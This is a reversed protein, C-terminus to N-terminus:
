GSGYGVRGSGKGVRIQEALQTPSLPLLTFHNCSLPLKPIEDMLNFVIVYFFAPSETPM